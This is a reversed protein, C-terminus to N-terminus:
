KASASQTQVQQLLKLFYDATKFGIVRAQLIEQGERGFFIIGPPGFLGFRKLLAKDDADNATVDAQLLLMQDMVLKVKPDTFTLKEMEICSVCWDAYFDLMVIKGGASALAQDLEEVTKIKKFETKQAREGHLNDWPAFPNDSGSAIGVWQVAGLVVFLVGLLKPIWGLHGSWLIFIGYAVALLGWGAMLLWAPILSAVMWLALALMVVGFLPKVVKMWQGARPLLTGASLGLLLLPVSMGLAMVFLASGGIIVNRTQSIYVLAGALPAAVCPGVILASLAGMIFVGVLKGGKQRESMKTLLLQLSAPMQLQYVDFMALSMVAILLAFSTLLWPKQLAAALGEGLLGAAIGLATYVFAMGLAYSLSLIFGRGRSTQVGEGVIIFSLIPVMPLVCPTLSLGLGLLFFLPLILSLKGSALSTQIRGFEGDQEQKIVPNTAQADSTDTAGQNKISLSSLRFITEMPAYCLGKDSCGQNGVTLTFKDSNEVPIRVILQQRFTEVEKEFNPDFKVKGHPIDPEGLSAGEAKFVLRERYLYYGEAIQFNVEISKADILRASVRFAKEPPLFDDDAHSPATVVGLLCIFSLLSCIWNRM